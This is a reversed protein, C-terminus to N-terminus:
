TESFIRHWNLLNKENLKNNQAFEYAEIIDEIVEIKEPKFKEKNMEYNM